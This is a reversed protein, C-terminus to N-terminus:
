IDALSVANMIRYTKILRFEIVSTNRTYEIRLSQNKQMMELRYGYDQYKEKLTAKIIRRHLAKPAAIRVTGSKKLEIWIAEYQRM